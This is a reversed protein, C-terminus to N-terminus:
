YDGLTAQDRRLARAEIGTEAVVHRALEDTFGHTTYVRDPDVARVVSLLEDFDCHDSLAFARDVGRRHRYGEEVAWGSFGATVAEDAGVLQEVVASGAARGPAVLVDDDGLLRDEGDADTEEGVTTAGFSRGIAAEVVDTVAAVEPTVYLRDRASRDALALLVQARGLAYGFLVAPHGRTDDLWDVVRAEVEAQRPFRYDPSGYTAEIVLVDASPPDFGELFLRDRVSVDGTYCYTRDPGEVVAARSGPVHGANRLSVRAHTTRSWDRDYSRRARALAATTASCVVSAPPTGFLHDGHAHTTVNVDGEPARADAVVREGSALDITIGDALRVSRM